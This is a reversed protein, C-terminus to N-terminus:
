KGPLPVSGLLHVHLAAIGHRCSSALSLEALHRMLPYTLESPGVYVVDIGPVSLIAKIKVNAEFVIDRSTVQPNL